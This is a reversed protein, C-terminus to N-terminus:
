APLPNESAPDPAAEPAAAPAGAQSFVVARNRGNEKAEYLATDAEKLLMERNDHRTAYSSIGLSVTINVQPANLDGLFKCNQVSERIREAVTKAGDLPTMPLIIVFEEGGYRAILDNERVSARALNAIEKLALDGAMHGFTDNYQKFHDIDLMILSLDNGYRRSHAFAETFRLQFYRHNYLGTLGDTIAQEKVQQYLRANEIALVAQNAIASILTAEDELFQHAERTDDVALLGIAQKKLLLPVALMGTVTIAGQLQKQFIEQDQGAEVNVPQQTALAQFFKASRIDPLFVSLHALQETALGYAAVANLHIKQDDLLWVICRDVGISEAAHRSLLALVEPLDLSSNVQQSVENMVVLQASKRLIVDSQTELMRNKEELERAIKSQEQFLLVNKLTVAIQTAFMLLLDRDAESFRARGQHDAALLVGLIEESFLIPVALVRSAEALFPLRNKAQRYNNDIIPEQTEAVQGIPGEGFRVSYEGDPLGGPNWAELQLRRPVRYDQAPPDALFLYVHRAHMLIGAHFVVKYLLSQLDPETSISQTTHFLVSSEANKARLLEERNELYARALDALVQQGLEDWAGCMAIREQGRYWTLILGRLTRQSVQLLQLLLGPDVQAKALHAFTDRAHEALWLFRPGLQAPTGEPFKNWVQEAFVALGRQRHGKAAPRAQRFALALARRVAAQQTALKRSLLTLRKPTLVTTTPL